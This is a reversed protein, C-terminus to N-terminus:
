DETWQLAGAAFQPQIGNSIALSANLAGSALLTGAGAADVGLGVHTATEPGGTCAPFQAQGANEGTPGTVTWGVATRVVAVRAYSTYACENTTQNGAEGPDATHLSLYVNTFTGEWPPDVNQLIWELFDTELVNSKSV